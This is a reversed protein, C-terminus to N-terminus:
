RRGKALKGSQSSASRGPSHVVAFVTSALRDDFIRMAEQFSVGHKKLNDAAKEDDWEFHWAM